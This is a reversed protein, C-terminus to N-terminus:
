GIAAKLWQQLFSKPRMGVAQEFVKGDKFLILTPISMIKFRGATKPADDVNVKAIAVQEGHEEALEELVPQLTKCPSCWNAWFDVLVPVDSGEIVQDFDDDVLDQIREEPV